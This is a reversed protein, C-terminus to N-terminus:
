SKCCIEEGHKEKNLDPYEWLAKDLVRLPTDEGIKEIGLYKVIDNCLGFYLDWGDDDLYIQHTGNKRYHYLKIMKLKERYGKEKLTYIARWDIVPCNGKSFFYVITSAVPYFIGGSKGNYSMNKKSFAVIKKVTEKPEITSSKIMDFFMQWKSSNLSQYYNKTRLAGKWKLIGDKRLLINRFDDATKISDISNLIGDENEPYNYKGRWEIIEKKSLNM